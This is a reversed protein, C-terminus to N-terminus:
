QTKEAKKGTLKEWRALIVDCFHEDREMMFCQRKLQECAILTTGSGGFLDLITQCEEKTQMIAWAIVELPKMTIHLKKENGWHHTIHRCNRGFNTWALEFESFSLGDNNKHWCLWDNNAQLVDAFYNGGWVCAYKAYKLMPVINPRTSDWKGRTYEQKGTGMQMKDANIGYPPDTMLLDIRSGCLLSNVNDLNESDGCMLRHEGLKWIEGRKVRPEIDEADADFDDEKIETQEDEAVAEEDWNPVDVGWDTLQCADWENALADWDWEGFGANDLVIYANLTEARTTAPIVKAPMETYGLEKCARFRMNGGIIVFKGDHEFVLLERLALMEPNREISRKLRDFKADKIIRPNARVGDIQGNNTALKNMPIMVSNNEVNEM